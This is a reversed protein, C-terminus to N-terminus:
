TYIYMCGHTCAYISMLNPDSLYVLGKSCVLRGCFLELIIHTSINVHMYKCGYACVCINILDPDSFDILYLTRVEKSCFYESKIRDSNGVASNSVYRLIVRM